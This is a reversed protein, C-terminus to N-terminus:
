CICKPPPPVVRCMITGLLSPPMHAQFSSTRPLLSAGSVAQGLFLCFLCLMFRRRVSTPEQICWLPPCWCPQSTPPLLVLDEHGYPGQLTKFVGPYNSLTSVWRAREPSLRHPILSDGLPEQQQLRSGLSLAAWVCTLSGLCM